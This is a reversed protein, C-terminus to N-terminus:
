ANGTSINDVTSGNIAKANFNISHGSVKVVSTEKDLANTIIKTHTTLDTSAQV